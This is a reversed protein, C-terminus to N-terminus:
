GEGSVARLDDAVHGVGLEGALDEWRIRTVAEAEFPELVQLPRYRFHECASLLEIRVREGAHERLALVAELAAVGGGAILVKAPGRCPSCAHDSM